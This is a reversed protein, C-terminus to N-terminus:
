PSEGARKLEEEAQLRIREEEQARTELSWEVIAEADPDVLRSDLLMRVRTSRVLRRSIEDFSFRGTAAQLDRTRSLSRAVAGPRILTPDPIARLVLLGADYGLAAFANDPVSRRFAKDWAASFEEWEQNGTREFYTAAVRFNSFTADLRRLVTPHTWDESVLTIRGRLGFFHLQPAVQLVQRAGDAVIFIADPDLETLARLEIEFTTSDPEYARSGVWEVGAAEVISQFIDSRRRGSENAPYFAAVRNVELSAVLWNGLAEAVLRDRRERTWISYAHPALVSDEAATPSIILMGPDSRAAAAARLAGSRIPGIIGAVGQAELGPIGFGTSDSELAEDVVVLEVPFGSDREYRAAALQIGHLIEEGVPAFGGTRPVVVGLRIGGAVTRKRGATFEELKDRDPDDLEADVLDAALAAARQEAGSMSLARVLEAKVTGLAKMDPTVRRAQRDLEDVSLGGVITRLIARWEGDLSAPHYLLQRVARDDAARALLLRVLRRVLNGSVGPQRSWATDLSDVVAIATEYDGALWASEAAVLAADEPGAHMTTDNAATVVPTPLSGPPGTGGCGIIGLCVLPLLLTPAWM